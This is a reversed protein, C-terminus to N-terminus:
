RLVMMKKVETFTGATLRYFYIGTAFNDANWEISRFGAEEVGDALVAVERGLVDYIKLTVRAAEPVDYRIVTSPNFPNPFNQHLAFSKPILPPASPEIRLRIASTLEPVIARGSGKLALHKANVILMANSRSSWAITLPYEASSIRIAEDTMGNDSAFLTSRNAAFRVDLLDGPPLPPLDSVAVGPAASTASWTLTREQGRADRIVLTDCRQGSPHETVTKAAASPPNHPANLVSGTAMVIRGANSVKIWYGRGPKLTDEIYYGTAGSFGFYNSAITTPAVPTIDTILVPYSLCGIMNWGNRVDLSERQVATGTISVSKTSPFKIWYGTGLTLTDSVQYSGAYAFAASSATPYLATKHNDAPIIPISLLNWSIQSAFDFVTTSGGLLRIGPIYGGELSNGGSTGAQVFPQGVSSQLTIGGGTSKGGGGDIVHWPQLLGQGFVPICALAVLAAVIRTRSNM